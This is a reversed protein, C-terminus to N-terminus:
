LPGQSGNLVPFAYNDFPLILQPVTYRINHIRKWTIWLVAQFRPASMSIRTAAGRFDRAILPYESKPIVADTMTPHPDGRVGRLLFRRGCWVGLMHGDVTIHQDNDPDMTNHYFATVKPGTVLRAIDGGALIDLAKARNAPYGQVPSLASIEGTSIKFCQSAARYTGAEDNNPSLVAFVAVSQAASFGYKAGISTIAQRQRDYYDHGDTREWALSKGWVEMINTINGRPTTM